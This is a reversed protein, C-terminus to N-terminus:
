LFLKTEWPLQHIYHGSNSCNYCKVPRKTPKSATTTSESPEDKVPCNRRIHGEVGCKHCKRTETMGAGSGMKSGEKDDTKPRMHRRALLYDDALRGAEEGGAPKREALWVRLDNPMTTMLQEVVLKELM